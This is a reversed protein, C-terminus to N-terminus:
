YPASSYKVTDDEFPGPYMLVLSVGFNQPTMDWPLGFVDSAFGAGRAASVCNYGTASWEPPTNYIGRTFELGNILDPFGIAFIRKINHSHSSDNQVFGQVTALNWLSLPPDNTPYFGWANGLLGTLNTSLYQLADSPAETRLQWFAHGVDYEGVPYFSYGPNAQQVYLDYYSKYKAASVSFSYYKVKVLPTIDVTANDPFIRYTVGNTNLYSGAVQISTPSITYSDSPEPTADYQNLELHRYGTANAQLGFLNKLKSGSKGGTRLQITVKSSRDLLYPYQTTDSLSGIEWPFGQFFIINTSLLHRYIVMALYDQWVVCSTLGNADWTDYEEFGVWIDDPYGNEVLNVYSYNGGNTNNWNWSVRVPLDGMPPSPPYTFSASGSATALVVESPKDPSAKIQITAHAFHNIGLILTSIYFFTKM